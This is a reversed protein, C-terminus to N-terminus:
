FFGVGTLLFFHDLSREVAQGPDQYYEPIDPGCEHNQVQNYAVEFDLRVRGIVFHPDQHLADRKGQEDDGAKHTSCRHYRQSSGDCTEDDAEKM